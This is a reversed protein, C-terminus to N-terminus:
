AVAERRTPPRFEPMVREAFLRLSRMTKEYGYYPPYHLLLSTLGTQDHIARLKAIVTEPSGHVLTTAALTDYDLPDVRSKESVTCLYGSTAGSMFHSLHRMIGAETDRKAAEDTEAVYVWRAVDVHGCAPNQDLPPPAEQMRERYFGVQRTLTEISPLTSLMLGFGHRAAYALSRETGAAMFLPPHPQQVSVPFLEYVDEITSRFYMGQHTVRRTHLLELILEIAEEQTDHRDEFERGFGEFEYPRYGSGLGIMVRGSSLIDVFAMNEVVRVPEYLPVTVVATGLRIRSTQAALYGMFTFVDPMIGYQNSFHHEAVWATDYGLADAAQIEATVRAHVDRHPYPERAHDPHSTFLIGFEM